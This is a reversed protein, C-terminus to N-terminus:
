SETSTYNYFCLVAFATSILFWLPNGAQFAAAAFICNLIFCVLSMNKSALFKM